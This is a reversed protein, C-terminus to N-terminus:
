PNNGHRNLICSTSGDGLIVDDVRALPHSTNDDFSSTTSEQDSVVVPTRGVLILANAADLEELPTISTKRKERAAATVVSPFLRTALLTPDRPRRLTRSGSSAVGRATTATTAGKIALPVQHQPQQKHLPMMMTPLAITTGSTATILPIAVYEKRRKFIDLAQLLLRKDAELQQQQSASLEGPLKWVMKTRPPPFDRLVHCITKTPTSIPCPVKCAGLLDMARSNKPFLNFWKLWAMTWAERRGCYIIGTSITVPLNTPLPVCGNHMYHLYIEIITQM